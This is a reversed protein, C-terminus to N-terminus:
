EAMFFDGDLGIERVDHKERKLSLALIMQGIRTLKSVSDHTTHKQADHNKAGNFGM